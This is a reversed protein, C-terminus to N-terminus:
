VNSRTRTVTELDVDTAEGIAERVSRVFDTDFRSRYQTVQRIVEPDALKAVADVADDIADFQLVGVGSPGDAVPEELDDIDDPTISTLMGAMAAHYLIVETHTEDGIAEIAAEGIAEAPWASIEITGEDTRHVGWDDPLDCADDLREIRSHLYTM